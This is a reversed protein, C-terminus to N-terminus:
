RYKFFEHACSHCVAIVKWVSRIRFHDVTTSVCQAVPENEVVMMMIMIIVAAIKSLVKPHLNEIFFM